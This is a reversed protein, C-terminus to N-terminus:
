QPDTKCDEFTFPTETVEVQIFKKEKLFRIISLEPYRAAEAIQPITAGNRWHGIIAAQENLTM